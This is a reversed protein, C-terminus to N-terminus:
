SQLGRSVLGEHLKEIAMRLAAARLQHTGQSAAWVAAFRDTMRRHLRSRVEELTWQDRQTEQTYELYSVFVGGANCLIDPLVVIERERLVDDAEHLTPGNAAEALITAKMDAAVQRTIVGGKAAPVLVDCDLTLLEDLAIAQAGPYGAVGGTVHVHSKIEDIDLGDPDYAAGTLDGIAVISM